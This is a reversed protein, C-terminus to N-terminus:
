RPSSGSVASVNVKLAESLQQQAETLNIGALRIEKQRSHEGRVISVERVTLHFVDALMRCVERNAGSDVPPAAVRVQLGGDALLELGPRKARPVVRTAVIVAGPQQRLIPM